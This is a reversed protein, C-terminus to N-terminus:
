DRRALRGPQFISAPSSTFVKLELVEDSRQAEDVLDALQGLLSSVMWVDFNAVVAHTEGEAGM